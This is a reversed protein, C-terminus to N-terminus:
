SIGLVEVTQWANRVANVELSGEKYMKLTQDVMKQAFDIFQSEPHIEGSQITNYWISGAKKFSYLYEPESSKTALETALLYFARNPIGSNIHVGGFDNEQSLHKYASMRDPQPDNGLIPHHKYATGPNSMSRLAYDGAVFLDSGIRWNNYTAKSDNETSNGDRIISPIPNNSDWQKVQIGFVDSISENLAGSQDHYHLKAPGYQTVGHTLEHGIVDAATTFHKFIKGDGDGYVMQKSDWFANNYSRSYHVSSIIPMGCNDISNRDYNELYFQATKLAGQYAQQIDKDKTNDNYSDIILKGPLKTRHRADYVRHTIPIPPAITSDMPIKGEILNLMPPRIFPQLDDFRLTYTNEKVFDDIKKTIHPPIIYCMCPSNTTDKPLNSLQHDTSFLPQQKQKIFLDLNSSLM